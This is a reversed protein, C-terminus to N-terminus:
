RRSRIKDWGTISTSQSYDTVETEFFAAKNNGNGGGIDAWDLLHKYPNEAEDYLPNMGIARLRLNALYRIYSKISGETFGLIEGDYISCIWEVEQTVATDFSEYIADESHPFVNFGEKVLKQYLSVHLLEDKNILKIIKATGAMRNSSALNYFFLFGGYFLVGELIYDAILAMMYNEPTPNEAFEVYPKSAIECRKSLVKDSKWFDYVKHREKEPVITEVIYQYSEGHMAEQSIQEALCNSVEWTTLHRSLNPINIVQVSDLYNLYSLIGMWARTEAPTLESYDSKDQTLDYRSPIWFSERMKTYIKRAWPFAIQTVDITGTSNGGWIKRQSKCDNGKPSYIQQLLM